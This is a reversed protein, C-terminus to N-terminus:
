RSICSKNKARRIRSACRARSRLARKVGSCIACCLCRSATRFRCFLAFSVSASFAIRLDRSAWFALSRLAFINPLFCPKVLMQLAAADLIPSVWKTLQLVFVSSICAKLMSITSLINCLTEPLLMRLEFPFAHRLENTICITLFIKWKHMKLTIM